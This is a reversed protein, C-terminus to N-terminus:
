TVIAVVSTCMLLTSRWWVSVLGEANHMLSILDSGQEDMTSFDEYFRSNVQKNSQRIDPIFRLCSKFEHLLDHQLTDPPLDMNINDMGVSFSSLNKLHENVFSTNSLAVESNFQMASLNKGDSDLKLVRIFNNEETSIAMDTIIVRNDNPEKRIKKVRIGLSMRIQKLTSTETMREISESSLHFYKSFYHGREEKSLEIVFVMEILKHDSNKIGGHVVEMGPIVGWLDRWLKCAELLSTKGSSNPGIFTHFGSNTSVQINKFCKYNLIEISRIKM